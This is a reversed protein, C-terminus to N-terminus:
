QGVVSAKLSFETGKGQLSKVHLTINQARAIEKAISLGLGYGNKGSNSRAKDSRYFRDFIHKIDKESIGIGTDAIKIEGISKNKEVTLSISGNKPTYKVANDLIITILDVVEEEAALINFDSITKKIKINKDKAMYRIKKLSKEICKKISIVEKELSVDAHKFLALRLMGESLRHLKDIEQVGDKMIEESESLTKNKDRLFVEFSTKLSTLPTKLEHSADSIFRNQEENMDEIPKLTLGALFYGSFGSIVLIGFNILILNYILRSKAVNFGMDDDLVLKLRQNDIPGRPIDKNEIEQLIQIRHMRQFRGFERITLNYIVTSFVLSILMIFLLYWATLKLKASKFM